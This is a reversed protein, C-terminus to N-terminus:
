RTGEQTLIVRRRCLVEQWSIGGLGGSLLGLKRRPWVGSQYMATTCSLDIEGSDLRAAIVRGDGCWQDQRGGSYMM